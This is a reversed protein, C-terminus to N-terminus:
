MRLNSSPTVPKEKKPLVRALGTKQKMMNIGVTNVLTGAQRLKTGGSNMNSGYQQLALGVGKYGKNNLINGAAGLFGGGKAMTNGTATM